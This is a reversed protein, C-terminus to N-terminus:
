ILTTPNKLGRFVWPCQLTAVIPKYVGYGLNERLPSDAM